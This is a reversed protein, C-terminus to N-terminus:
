QCEGDDAISFGVPYGREYDPSPTRCTKCMFRRGQLTHGGYDKNRPYQMPWEGMDRMLEGCGNCLVNFKSKFLDM